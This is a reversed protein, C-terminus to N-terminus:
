ALPERRWTAGPTEMTDPGTRVFAYRETFPVTYPQCTGPLAYCLRDPRIADVNLSVQVRDSGLPAATWTGSLQVSFNTGGSDDRYLTLRGDPYLALVINPVVADKQKLEEVRWRGALAQRLEPDPAALPAAPSAAAPRTPVSPAEPTGDEDNSNHLAAGIRGVTGCGSALLLAALAPVLLSTGPRM